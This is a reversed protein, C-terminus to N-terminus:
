VQWTPEADVHKHINVHEELAFIVANCKAVIHLTEPNNCHYAPGEAMMPVLSHKGNFAKTSAISAMIQMLYCGAWASGPM